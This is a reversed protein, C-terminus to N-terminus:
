IVYAAQQIPLVSSPLKRVHAICCASFAIKSCWPVVLHHCSRASHDRGFRLDTHVSYICVFRIQDATNHVLSLGLRAQIAAQFDAEEQEQEATDTDEQATPAPM